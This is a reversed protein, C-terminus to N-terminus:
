VKDVGSDLSVHNICTSCSRTVEEWSDCNEYPDTQNTLRFKSWRCNGDVRRYHKCNGCRAEEEKGKRAAKASQTQTYNTCDSCVCVPIQDLAQMMVRVMSEKTRATILGLARSNANHHRGRERHPLAISVNVLHPTAKTKITFDRM